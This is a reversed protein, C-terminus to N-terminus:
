FEKGNYLGAVYKEYGNYKLTPVQNMRPILKEV